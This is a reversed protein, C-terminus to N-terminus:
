RSPLCSSCSDYPSGRLMQMAWHWYWLDPCSWRQISRAPFPATELSAAVWNIGQRLGPLRPGADSERDIWNQPRKLSCGFLSVWSWIHAYSLVSIVLYLVIEIYIITLTRSGLSRACLCRRWGKMPTEVRPRWTSVPWWSTARMGRTKERRPWLSGVDQHM